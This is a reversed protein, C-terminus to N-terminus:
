QSVKKGQDLFQEAQGDIGIVEAVQTMFDFRRASAGYDGVWGVLKM